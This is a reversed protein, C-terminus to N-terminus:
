VYIKRLKAYMTVITLAILISISMYIPNNSLLLPTVVDLYGTCNGMAGGCTYEIPWSTITPFSLVFIGVMIRKQMKTTQRKVIILHLYIIEILLGIGYLCYVFVKLETDWNILSNVDSANSNTIYWAIFYLLSLALGYVIFRLVIIGGIVNLVILYKRDLKLVFLSVFLSILCSIVLADLMDDPLSYEHRYESYVWLFFIFVVALLIFSLTLYAIIRLLTHTQANEM